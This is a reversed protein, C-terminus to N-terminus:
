VAGRFMLQTIYQVHNIKGGVVSICQVFLGAAKLYRMVKLQIKNLGWDVFSSWNRGCSYFNFDWKSSISSYDEWLKFECLKSLLKFSHGHFLGGNPTPFLEVTKLKVFSLVHNCSLHHFPQSFDEHFLGCPGLEEQCRARTKKLDIITWHLFSFIPM